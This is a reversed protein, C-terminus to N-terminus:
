HHNGGLATLFFTDPLLLFHRVFTQGTLFLDGFVRTVEWNNAKKSWSIHIIMSKKLGEITQCTPDRAASQFWFGLATETKVAAM